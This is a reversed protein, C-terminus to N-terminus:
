RQGTRFVPALGTHNSGAAVAVVGTPATLHVPTANCQCGTTTTTGDGIEGNPNVGWVWVTGDGALAVSHAGYEAAIAVIGTPTALHVPTPVCGCTTLGRVTGNGIEGFANSGWAWITGDRALALSHQGGTAVAVIGTPTALHVLTPNCGCGTTMTTGDGLQGYFNAGWAWVTGDGALALSHHVGAALRTIGALGPVATAVPRDTTTGDGVQGAVNWGWAAVSGAVGAVGAVGSAGAPRTSGPRGLLLMLIVALGVRGWWGQM